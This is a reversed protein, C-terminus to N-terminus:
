ESSKSWRSVITLKFVSWFCKTDGVDLNAEGNQATAPDQDNTAGAILITSINQHPLDFLEEYQFLDSYVASQNLFSGFGVRSGARPDPVYGATNYMDQLCSLTLIASCDANIETESTTGKYPQVFAPASNTTAKGLYVTPDIMDIFNVLDDPVSYEKTRIKSVGANEYRVFTTNLLSNATGITTAFTVFAGDTSIHKVGASTLWSSVADVSGAVPAFFENLEDADMYQGYSASGPTSVSSLKSELQDLNQQALAITFTLVSNEDAASTATWGAPVEVLRELVAGLAPLVQLLLAASFAPRSFM